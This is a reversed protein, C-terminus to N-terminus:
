SKASLVPTYCSEVVIALSLKLNQFFMPLNEAEDLVADVTLSGGGGEFGIVLSESSESGDAEEGNPLM